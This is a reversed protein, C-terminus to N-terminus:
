ESLIEFNNSLTNGQTCLISDQNNACIVKMTKMNTM